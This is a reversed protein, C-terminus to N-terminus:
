QIVDEYQDQQQAGLLGLALSLFATAYVGFRLWSLMEQLRSGGIAMIGWGLLGLNIICILICFQKTTTAAQNTAILLIVLASGLPIVYVLNFWETGSSRAGFFSMFQGLQKMAEPIQQGSINSQNSGSLWPLFFAAILLVACAILPTKWSDTGV